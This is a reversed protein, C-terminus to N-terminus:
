EGVNGRRGYLGLSSGSCSHPPEPLGLRGYSVEKVARPDDEFKVGEWAKPDFTAVPAAWVAPEAKQAKTTLGLKVARNRVSSPSRNNLVEYERIHANYKPGYTARLECIAADEKPTFLPGGLNYVNSKM